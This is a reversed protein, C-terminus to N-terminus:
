SNILSSKNKTSTLYNAGISGIYFLVGFVSIDILLKQIDFADSFLSYEFAFLYFIGKSGFYATLFPILFNLLSKNSQNIEM